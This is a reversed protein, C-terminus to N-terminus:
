NNAINNLENQVQAEIETEIEAQVEPPDNPDLPATTFDGSLITTGAVGKLFDVVKVKHIDCTGTGNKVDFHGVGNADTFIGGVMTVASTPTGGNVMVAYPHLASAHIDIEFKNVAPSKLTAAAVKVDSSGTATSGNQPSLVMQNNCTQAWAPATVLALGVMVVAFVWHKKQM